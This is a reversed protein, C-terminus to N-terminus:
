GQERSKDGRKVQAKPMRLRRMQLSRMLTYSVLGKLSENPLKRLALRKVGYALRFSDAVILVIVALWLLTSIPQLAPSVTLMLIVVALPLFFEAVCIRADVYDRALRRAPGKDRAPLYREDGSALAERQKVMAARRRERAQRAADKRDAPASVRTRRGNQADSRKPTPRGKPAQPDRDRGQPGPVRDATATAAQEDKSRRRFVSSSYTTAPTPGWGPLSRDPIPGGRGARAMEEGRPVPGPVITRCSSRM